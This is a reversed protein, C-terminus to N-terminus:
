PRVRAGHRRLAVGAVAAGLVMTLTMPLVRLGSDLASLKLVQSASIELGSSWVADSAAQEALRAGLPNHAGAVRIVGPRETRPLPFRGSCTTNPRDAASGARPVPRAM